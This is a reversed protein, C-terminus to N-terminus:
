EAPRLPALPDAKVPAPPPSQPVAPKQEVQPQPQQPQVVQPEIGPQPKPKMPRAQRVPAPQNQIGSRTIVLDRVVAEKPGNVTLEAGNLVLKLAGTRGYGLVFRQDASWTLSEGRKLVAKKQPSDDTRVLLWTDETAVVELYLKEPIAGHVTTTEQSVVAPLSPVAKQLINKSPRSPLSSFLFVFLVILIVAGWVFPEVPTVKPTQAEREVPMADHEANPASAVPAPSSTPQPNPKLQAYRKMVESEDLCLFRSYNKLFGKVFVEGPLKSFDEDELAKLYQISIRTQQAADRLDINKVLRADRLYQGLTGMMM